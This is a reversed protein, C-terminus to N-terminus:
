SHPFPNATHTKKFITRPTSGLLPHTKPRYDLPRRIIPRIGHFSFFVSLHNLLPFPVLSSRDVLHSFILELNASCYPPVPTIMSYHPFRSTTSGLATSEKSNPAPCPRYEWQRSRIVYYLIDIYKQGQIILESGYVNPTTAPRLLCHTPLTFNGVTENRRVDMAIRLYVGVGNRWAM